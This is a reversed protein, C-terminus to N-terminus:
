TPPFDEYSKPLYGWIRLVDGLVEFEFGIQAVVESIESAHDITAQALLRGDSPSLESLGIDFWEVSEFPFPLHYFWEVDWGSINGAVSKSRYSPRWGQRQRFHNILENWKTNNSASALNRAVVATHIKKRTADDNGASADPLENM